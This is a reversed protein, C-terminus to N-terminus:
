PIRCETSDDKNLTWCLRWSKVKADSLKPFLHRLYTFAYSERDLTWVFQKMLGLKLHLSRSLVKEPPVLPYCKMNHWSLTRSRKPVTMLDESSNDRQLPPFPVSLAPCCPVQAISLPLNPCVVVCTFTKKRSSTWPLPRVMCSYYNTFHDTPERGIGAMSDRVEDVAKRKSVM